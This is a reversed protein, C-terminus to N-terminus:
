IKDIDLNKLGYIKEIDKLLCNFYLKWSEQFEKETKCTPRIIERYSNYEDEMKKRLMAKSMYPRTRIRFGDQDAIGIIISTVVIFLGIVLEM